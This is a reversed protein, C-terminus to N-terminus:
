QKFILKKYWANFHILSKLKSFATRKHVHIFSFQKSLIYKLGKTDVSILKLFPFVSFMWTWILDICSQSYTKFCLFDNTLM